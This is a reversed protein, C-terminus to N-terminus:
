GGGPENLRQNSDKWHFDTDYIKVSGGIMANKGITISDCCFITSNSIAVGDDICIKGKGRAYLITRTDGGIPNSARSSNIRVGEGIVVGERSDSWCLLRGNIKLNAGHQINRYKIILANLLNSPVNMIVLIIKKIKM